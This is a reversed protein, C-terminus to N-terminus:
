VTGSEDSIVSDPAPGLVASRSPLSQRSSTDREWRIPRDLRYRLRCRLRAALKVYGYVALGPWNRPDLSLRLLVPGNRPAENVVLDPCHARIEWKSFHSRTRTAVLSKLDAPATVISVTDQVTIREDPRFQLRVYSDDTTIDPFHNFRSRGQSSLAYVGSNGIGERFWPLQQEVFYFARVARSSNGLDVQARPAAAFAGGNRLLDAIRCIDPLSLQVDADIYFRPFTTAVEDGLNLAHTKGPIETEVVKVAPVYSRAIEVTRDRCANCVVVIEIKVHTASNLLVSLCRAIVAEENHAPIIISVSDM